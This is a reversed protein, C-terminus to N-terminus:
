EVRAHLTELGRQANLTLYAAHILEKLHDGTAASILFPTQTKTKQKFIKKIKEATKPEFSFLDSKNIAIIEKKDLLDPHFEKLEKRLVRYNKILKTIGTDIDEHLESILESGDLLHILVRTREIHKLFRHGLGLGKSAGEIVGPIDAIVFSQFESIFVVGLNPTLTTFAYDAIKPKSRSVKSILTSKGTNPFGIIGVDALLKLELTLEKSEGEEGDQAFRPAQYTSSTFHTNGKGGRGGKCAVYTQGDQSFDMLIKGTHTEKMLTGVPVKILISKGDRGAKNAGSGYAGKPAEVVRKYRFDQLTSLQSHAIFSVDGGDGGDGGDPGGKPIFKERRFSVAGPGGHGAKVKIKAEDIFRM